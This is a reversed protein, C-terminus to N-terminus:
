PMVAKIVERGRRRCLSFDKRETSYVVSDRELESLRVVCADAFQMRLYKKMLAGLAKAEQPLLSVGHLAGRATMQMLLLGFGPVRYETEAIVTEGTTLASRQETESIKSESLFNRQLAESPSPNERGAV